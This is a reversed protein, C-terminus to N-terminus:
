TLLYQLLHFLFNYTSSVYMNQAKNMDSDFNYKIMSVTCADTYFIRAHFINVLSIHYSGWFSYLIRSHSCHAIFTQHFQIIIRDQVVWPSTINGLYHHHCWCHYHHCKFHFLMQLHEHYFSNSTTINMISHTLHQSTKTSKVFKQESCNCFLESSVSDTGSSFSDITGGPLLCSLRNFEIKSVPLSLKLRSETPRPPNPSPKLAAKGFNGENLTLISYHVHVHWEGNRSFYLLTTESDTM